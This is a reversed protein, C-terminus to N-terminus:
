ERGAVDDHGQQSPHLVDQMLGAANAAEWGAGYDKAWEEYLDVFACSKAEAVRKTISRYEAQVQPMVGAASSSDAAIPDIRDCGEDDNDRQAIAAVRDQHGQPHEDGRYAGRCRGVAFDQKPTRIISSGSTTVATRTVVPDDATVTASRPRQEYPAILLVDAFNRFADVLRELTQGFRAPRSVSTM